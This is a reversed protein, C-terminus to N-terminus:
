QVICDRSEKKGRLKKASNDPWRSELQLSGVTVNSGSSASPHQPGVTRGCASSASSSVRCGSGPQDCGGTVHKSVSGSDRRQVSSRPGPALTPESGPFYVTKARGPRHDSQSRHQDSGRHPSALTGPSSQPPASRHRSSPFSASSSQRTERRWAPRPRDDGHDWVKNQLPSDRRQAHQKMQFVSRCLKAKLGAINAKYGEIAREQETLKDCAREFDQKVEKYNQMCKCLEEKLADRKDTLRKNADRLANLETMHENLKASVQQQIKAKQCESGELRAELKCHEQRLKDLTKQVCENTEKLAEYEAECRERRELEQSKQRLEAKLDCVAQRLEVNERILETNAEKQRLLEANQNKYKECFMKLQSKLKEHRQTLLENTHYAENRERVTDDFIRQIFRVNDPGSCDM